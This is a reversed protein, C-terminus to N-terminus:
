APLGFNSALRNFDQLNVQNDFNFNGQTWLATGSTGFNSALRNFDQLNVQGDLNADGYRTYRLLVTTNDVSQGAFTAPFSSFVASAEGYGVARNATSAATSSTIGAGTWAGGAYGSTVLPLVTTLLPSGGDYDLILANNTLDLAGTGNIALAGLRLVNSGGSAIRARGGSNITLAGLNEVGGFIVEALGTADTNVTVTDNGADSVIRLPTAPATEEVAIANAGATASLMLDEFGIYSIMTTLLAPASVDRDSVVYERDASVSNDDIFLSDAGDEGGVTVRAAISELNGAGVHVADDGAGAFLTVPVNAATANVHVTNSGSGLDVRVRELTGHTLLAAGNRLISGAAITFSDTATGLTDDVFLDDIGSQGNLTLPFGNLPVLMGGSGVIFDDDGAGGNITTPASLSAINFVNDGGGEPGGGGRREGARAGPRSGPEASFLGADLRLSEIAAYMVGGFAARVASSATIDWEDPFANNQDALRLADAGGEGNVLVQGEIADLLLGTPALNITDDGGGANISITTGAPVGEIDVTNAGENGEAPGRGRAGASPVAGAGLGLNLTVSETAGSYGFGGFFGRLILDVDVSFQDDFENTRDHLVASDQGAGGDFTVQQEIADLNQAAPGLAISDNGDQGQVTLPITAGEVTITDNGSGAFVNIMQGPGISVVNAVGNITVTTSTANATVVITDDNATATLDVALLLRREVPEVRHYRASRTRRVRRAQGVKLLMTVGKRVWGVHLGATTLPEPKLPLPPTFTSRRIRDL